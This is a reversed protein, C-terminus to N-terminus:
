VNIKEGNVGKVEIGRRVEDAITRLGLLRKEATSSLFLSAVPWAHVGGAVKHVRVDHGLKRQSRIFDLADGAFVEQDGFAVLWGEKPQAARWLEEDVCSGPSAPAQQVMTDGAYAHAYRWLTSRDLFDVDSEHHRSSLLTVWPSILIVKHPLHLKTLSRPVALGGGGKGGRSRAGLELLLSLVLTGGASDGGVCVRSATGATQLVHRYGQLTQHVQRPYIDDPVLTYELAFVAPNTYGAELLLHHLAMLFELYFYSSGMAFGGGHLYYLVADPTKEQDQRLWIGGTESSGEGITVEEFHMPYRWYGHRAMRWRVFPLAVSKSFFVRGVSAPINAFAYRVCRIVFDEFATADQVFRSQSQRSTFYREKVFEYPLRLALFPLCRLVTLVTSFIGVQILLQPALFICFVVCDILSVPGLIM